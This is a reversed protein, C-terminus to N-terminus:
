AESDTDDAAGDDTATDDAPAAGALPSETVRRLAAEVLTMRLGDDTEIDFYPGRRSVVTFIGPVQMNIVRDGIQIPQEAM